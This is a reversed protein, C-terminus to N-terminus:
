PAASVVFTPRELGISSERSNYDVGDTSLNDLAFCYVGDGGVASTVDFEVVASRAVPGLAALVLSDIPPRTNWTITREDWGCASLPHIRGGSASQADKVDAVQLRLRASVVRRTGVGTIRVRVFTQTTSPGADAGIISTTGLMTTPTTSVVSADAEVTAVPPPCTCEARCAGPCAADADGDCEEHAQNVAGDGCVAPECTCDTRCRGPCAGDAAGDCEEGCDAALVGDGCSPAGALCEGDACVDGRTCLDGDDCSATNAVHGCGVAPDCSDDTCPNGDECRPEHVCGRQPDCSDTTCEDGDDCGVTAGPECTGAICTDAATCANGDDCFGGNFTYACGSSPDCTEDTCPNDDDCSRAAGATCQRERCVDGTTCADGDDCPAANPIATCGSAPDCGDDTCGDGDDCALSAGGECRGDVCADLITCANGDECPIAVPGPVHTCGLASECDDITCPNGDDCDVPGGPRCEGGACADATCRDGDDCARTHPLAVCGLAPDCDDDTCPNGDNCTIPSGPQCAGGGCVDASTCVDGDDCPVTNPVNRCGDEVDCSDDTCDNRDDCANPAGSICRGSACHDGVTCPNGDSCPIVAAAHVCGRTADCRDTTCPNGDDCAADATCALAELRLVPHREAGQQRSAYGARDSSKTRLALSYLNPGGQFYSTVDVSRVQKAVVRGLAAVPRSFDPVWPSTDKADLKKDNNTDLDTWKLGPGGASASTEGDRDGEIWTSSPVPYLTGGDSSGDTCYLTLTAARVAGPVATLDFKFYAIEIPSNDVGLDLAIGQDWTKEKGNHVHTDAVPTLDRTSPDACTCDTLCHGPCVTAEFGDCLEEPQNVIGDGCGPPPEVEGCVCDPRCVGPCAADAAGDCEERTLDLVGDGCGPARGDPCIDLGLATAAEEWAMLDFDDGSGACDDCVGLVGGAFRSPASQLIDIGDTANAYDGSANRLVFNGVPALTRRDFVELQTPVTSFEQQDAVVLWGGTGCRYLAVGEADGQIQAAGFESLFVGEPSFARVIGDAGDSVYVRRYLDDAVVSEHSDLGTPFIRVRTSTALDYVHVTKQTQDTVFALDQGDVHLVAVGQPDTFDASWVARVAFDPIHHVVVKRDDQDTTILLDGSVDCNNPHRFGGLSQLWEGTALRFVEVAPADKATVFALSAERDSPDEWFCIDDYNIGSGALELEVPLVSQAGARAALGALLVLLAWVVASRLSARIPSRVRM